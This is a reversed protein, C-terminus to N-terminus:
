FLRLARIGSSRVVINGREIDVSTGEADPLRANPGPNPPGLQFTLRDVDPRDGGDQVRVYLWRSSAEGTSSQRLPGWFTVAGDDEFRVYKIIAGFQDDWSDAYKLHGRATPADLSRAPTRREYVEFAITAEVRRTAQMQNGPDTRYVGRVEGYATNERDLQQLTTPDVDAEDEAVGVPSEGTCGVLLVVALTSLMLWRALPPIRHTM